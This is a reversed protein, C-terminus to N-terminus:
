PAGAAELEVKRIAQELALLEDMRESASLAPKFDRVQERLVKRAHVYVEQRAEPTSQELSAVARAVLPYYDRAMTTETYM